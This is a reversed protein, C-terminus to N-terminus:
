RLFAWSANRYRAETLEGARTLFAADPQWVQMDASMAHAVLNPFKNPIKLLQLSGQYLTGIRTRRMAGGLIKRGSLMLDGCVPSAFCRSGTQFDQPTARQVEPHTPRLADLVADHIRNYLANARLYAAPEGSPIALTITLDTGHEVLGGATWRRVWPRTGAFTQITDAPQTYGGSVEPHEWQYFRLIPIEGFANLLAEDAAM